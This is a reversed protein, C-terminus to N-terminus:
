DLDNLTKLAKYVYENGFEGFYSIFEAKESIVVFSFCPYHKKFFLREIIQDPDKIWSKYGDIVGLLGEVEKYAYIVNSKKIKNIEKEMKDYRRKMKRRTVIVSSNCPDKGPYYVIVIAKTSDIKKNTSLTLLSDLHKRNRLKGKKERVSLIKHNVSDGQISLLRNKFKRSEYEQKTIPNYNEDFYKFSDNDAKLKQSFSFSSVLVTMVFILLSKKM